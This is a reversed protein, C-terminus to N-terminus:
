TTVANRRARRISVGLILLGIGMLALSSPEPTPALTSPLLTGALSQNTGLLASINESTPFQVNLELAGPYDLFVTYELLPCPQPYEACTTTLSAPATAVNQSYVPFNFSGQNSGAVQTFYLLDLVGTLLTGTEGNSSGTFVFNAGCLQDQPNCGPVLPSGDFEYPDGYGPALLTSNPPSTLTFDGSSTIAASGSGVGTGSLTCVGSSDCAGLTVTLTNTGAGQGTFTIPQGAGGQLLISGQAAAAVGMGLLLALTSTITGMPIRM